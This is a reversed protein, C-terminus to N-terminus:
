STFYWDYVGLTDLFSFSISVCLKNKWFPTFIIIIIQQLNVSNLSHVLPLTFFVLTLTMCCIMILVAKYKCTSFFLCLLISWSIYIFIYIEEKKCCYYVVCLFFMISYQFQSLFYHIGSNYIIAKHILQTVFYLNWIM